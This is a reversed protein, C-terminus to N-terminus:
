EFRAPPISKIPLILTDEIYKRVDRSVYCDSNLCEILFKNADYYKELLEKQADTFEWNHGINRHEIMIAMFEQTWNAGYSMWCQKKTDFNEKPNPLQAQLSLLKRKLEENRELAIDLNMDQDFNFVIDIYQNLNFGQTVDQNLVYQTLDRFMDLYQALSRDLQLEYTMSETFYQIGDREFDRIIDRDLELYLAFYWARVAAKKYLAEVSNSKEEVWTLYQQLREDGELLSDIQQKMLLLLSDANVLMGVTLLFVERWRTESIRVALIHLLIDNGAEKIKRATFYEHVTLHSFSYIGRARIFIM